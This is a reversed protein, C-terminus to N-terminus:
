EKKKQLEEYIRCDQEYNEIEKIIKKIELDVDSLYNNLENRNSELKKNIKNTKVILSKLKTSILDYRMQGLDSILSVFLDVNIKRRKKFIM